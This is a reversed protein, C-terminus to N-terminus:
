AMLLILEVVDFGPSEGRGLVSVIRHAGHRVQRAENGRGGYEFAFPLVPQAGHVHSTLM